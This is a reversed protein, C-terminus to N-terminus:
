WVCEPYTQKDLFKYKVLTHAMVPPHVASLNYRLVLLGTTNLIVGPNWVSM